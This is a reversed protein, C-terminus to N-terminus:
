ENWPYYKVYEEKTLTGEKILRDCIARDAPPLDAYTNGKGRKVGGGGEVASPRNRKPNVGFKEPFMDRIKKSVERLNDDMSMNRSAHARSLGIAIETMEVDNDFWPEQSAWDKIIPDVEPQQPQEPAFSEQSSKQLDEKKKEIQRFRETDGETIAEEQERRLEEIAKEYAQKEVRSTHERLAKVDKRMESIERDRKAAVEDQKRLRDRLVPLENEGREIFVNADVWKEEPGSYEEKPIWGMRRAKEENTSASDSQELQADDQADNREQQESNEAMTNEEIATTEETM